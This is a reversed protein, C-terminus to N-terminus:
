GQMILQGLKGELRDMRRDSRQQQERMSTKLEIKVNSISTKL